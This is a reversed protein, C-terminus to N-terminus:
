GLLARTSGPLSGLQDSASQLGSGLPTLISHENLWRKRAPNYPAGDQRRYLGARYAAELKRGMGAFARGM